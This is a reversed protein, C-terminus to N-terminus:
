KRNIFHKLQKRGQNMYQLLSFFSSDHPFFDRHRVIFQLCLPWFFLPSIRYFLAGRGRLYEANYGTFWSSTALDVVGIETSCSYLTAGKKLAEVIFLTDEGSSFPPHGFLIDFSLNFKLVSSRRVAINIAGYRFSNYIHVRQMGETQKIDPRQENGKRAIRFFIIDAMPHTAFAHRIINGYGDHYTVDNDSFLLIDGKARALATARSLGIGKEPLSLIRVSHDNFTATSYGTRTDALCQDMVFVQEDINMQELLSTGPFNMTSLLHEVVPQTSM